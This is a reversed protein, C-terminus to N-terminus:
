ARTRSRLVAQFRNDSADCVAVPMAYFIYRCAYGAPVYARDGVGSAAEGQFQGVGRSGVQHEKM